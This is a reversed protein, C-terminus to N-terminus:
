RTSTSRASVNASGVRSLGRLALRHLPHGRLEFADAAPLRGDGGLHDGHVLPVRELPIAKVDARGVGNM